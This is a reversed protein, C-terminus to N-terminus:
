SCCLSGKRLQKEERKDKCCGNVFYIILIEFFMICYYCVFVPAYCILYIYFYNRLDSDKHWVDVQIGEMLWIVMNWKHWWCLPSLM